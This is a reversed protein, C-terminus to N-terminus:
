ADGKAAKELSATSQEILETWSTEFKEVGEDELVQVVDAYSIGLAELDDLVQRADTYHSRITDGTVRGHDHVADLTPEPM